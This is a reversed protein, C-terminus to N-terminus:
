TVEEIIEPALSKAGAFTTPKGIQTACGWDNLFTAKNKCDLFFNNIKVDRHCIGIKHVSKLIQVVEIIHEITIPAKTVEDENLETPDSTKPNKSFHAGVPSLLLSCFGSTSSAILRTVKEIKNVELKKLNSKETNM